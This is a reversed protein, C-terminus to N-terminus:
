CEQANPQGRWTEVPAFCEQSKVFLREPMYTPGIYLFFFMFDVFVSVYFVGYAFMLVKNSSAWMTCVVSFTTHLNLVYPTCVGLLNYVLIM